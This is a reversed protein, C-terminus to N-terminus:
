FYRKRKSSPLIGLMERYKAVTRRAININQSRLIQVIKNDSLPKKPEEEAIIKKLLSKVSESAVEEGKVQSIGSNFFYKLEFIGQPTHIYKNTTVRSITSEHMDIDEAVDRLVLPKLHSVGDDLFNKQFKIISLTVKLITRQRQHISRILWLASRLKDQVYSKANDLEGQVLADKYFPSVRLKPMGDENLQAVYEDDVKYVYIDPTIYRPAEDSFPRGPKPDMSSILKAVRIVEDMTIKLSRSIQTYNKKELNPIHKDIVKHVIPDDPYIKQAQILLCERLDRGAVGLPDFDQIKKITEECVEVSTDLDIAIEELTVGRLYGYENLNGIIIAGIQEEIESFDSMRLQWELHDYLSEGKTLTAEPGPLEDNMGRYSNSPPPTNYNQLYNEWDIKDIASEGDRVEVTTEEAKEKDENERTLAPDRMEPTEELVPNEVMEQQVVSELEIRSLQLLKIAMQLQPTMRLEQRMRLQQRMELFM